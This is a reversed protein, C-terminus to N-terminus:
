CRSDIARSSTLDCSILPLSSFSSPILLFRAVQLLPGSRHKLDIPFRRCKESERPDRAWQRRRRRRCRRLRGDLTHERLHGHRSSGHFRSRDSCVEGAFWCMAATPLPGLGDCRLGVALDHYKPRAITSRSGRQGLMIRASLGRFLNRRIARARVRFYAPCVSHQPPCAGASGAAPAPILWDHV